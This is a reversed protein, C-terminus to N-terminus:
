RGEACYSCRGCPMLFAGVVAQGVALGSSETGPGLEVVTGSIEHGMVAPTPFPISGHMVHLDSHCVGCATVRVLVEEHRPRPTRIQQISPKEGPATLVAARMTPPVPPGGPTTTM